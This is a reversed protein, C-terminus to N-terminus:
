YRKNYKGNLIAKWFKKTDSDIYYENIKMQGYKIFEKKFPVVKGQDILRDFTKKIYPNQGIEKNFKIFAKTIKEFADPINYDFVLMSIIDAETQHKKSLVQKFEIPDSKYHNWYHGTNFTSLAYDLLLSYNRKPSLLDTEYSYNELLIKGMKYDVRTFLAFAILDMGYGRKGKKIENLVFESTFESRDWPLKERNLKNQINISEMALESVRSLSVNNKNRRDSSLTFDIWISYFLDLDETNL